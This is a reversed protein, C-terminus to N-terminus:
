AGDFYDWPFEPKLIPRYGAPAAFPASLLEYVGVLVRPVIMGLGKAFGLPIGIGAGQARTEKVMQGPVELFSTTMNALGRGMKRMATQAAAPQASILLLIAVAFCARTITTMPAGNDAKATRILIAGFVSELTGSVLGNRTM